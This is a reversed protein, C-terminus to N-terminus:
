PSGAPLPDSKEWDVVSQYRLAMTKNPLCKAKNGAVYSSFKDQNKASECGKAAARLVHLTAIACKKRDLELDHPSWTTPWIGYNWKPHVQGLCWANGHDCLEKRLGACHYQEVRLDYDSEWRYVSLIFLATRTRAHPGAFLPAEAPDNAVALVARVIEQRRAFHQEETERPVGSKAEIKYSPRWYLSARILYTETSETAFAQQNCTACAFVVLLLAIILAKM